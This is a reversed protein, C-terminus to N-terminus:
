PAHGGNEGVTQIRQEYQKKMRGLCERIVKYDQQLRAEQLHLLLIIENYDSDFSM